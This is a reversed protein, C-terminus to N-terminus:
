NLKPQVLDVLDVVVEAELGALRVSIVLILLQQTGTDVSRKYLFNYESRWPVKLLVFKVSKEDCAPSKEEGAQPHAEVGARFLLTCCAHCWSVELALFSLALWSRVSGEEGCVTM